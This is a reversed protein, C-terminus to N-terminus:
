PLKFKLDIDSSIGPFSMNSTITNAVDAIHMNPRGPDEHLQDFSAATGVLNIQARKGFKDYSLAMGQNRAKGGIGLGIGGEKVSNVTQNAGHRPGEATGSFVRKNKSAATATMPKNITVRFPAGDRSSEGDWPQQSFGSQRMSLLKQTQEHQMLNSALQRKAENAEEQLHAYNDRLRDNENELEKCIEYLEKCKDKWLDNKIDKGELAKMELRM